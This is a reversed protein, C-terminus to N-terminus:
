DTVSFRLVKVVAGKRDTIEVRWPGKDAERLQISSYSSWRPPKLVLRKTTVLQDRRFWKHYVFTKAPVSDFETYCFIRGVEIPFVVAVRHPVYDALSECMVARALHPSKETGALAPVAVLAMTLPFLLWAMIPHIRM